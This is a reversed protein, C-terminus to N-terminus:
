APLVTLFLAAVSVFILLFGVPIWLLGFENDMRNLYESQSIHSTNIWNYVPAAAPRRGRALQAPRSGRIPSLARNEV